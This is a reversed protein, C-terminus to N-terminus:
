VFVQFSGAGSVTVNPVGAATITVNKTLAPLNSQLLITQNALNAAFSIVEGSAATNIADRLSGMSMDANTTVVAPVAREELAEIGPRFRPAVSLRRSPSRTIGLTSLLRRSWSMFPM